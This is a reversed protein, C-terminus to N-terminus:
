PFELCQGHKKRVRIRDAETPNIRLEVWIEALVKPHVGYCGKFDDILTKRQQRSLREISAGELRLVIEMMEDVTYVM